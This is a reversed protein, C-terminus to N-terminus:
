RVVGTRVTAAAGAPTPRHPRRADGRATEANTAPKWTAIEPCDQAMQEIHRQVALISDRLCAICITRGTDTQIHMEVFHGDLYAALEMSVARYRLPAAPSNM